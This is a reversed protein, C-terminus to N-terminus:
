SSWVPVWEAENLALNYALISGELVLDRATCLYTGREETVCFQAVPTVPSLDVAQGQCYGYSEAETPVRPIAAMTPWVM